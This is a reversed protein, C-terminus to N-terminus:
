MSRISACFDAGMGDAPASGDMCADRLQQQREASLSQFQAAFREQPAITTRGEDAFFGNADSDFSQLAMGLRSNAGISATASNDVNTQTNTGDRNGAAAVGAGGTANLKTDTGDNTGSGVAGTGASADANLGVGVNAAAGGGAGGSDGTGSVGISTGGGINVGGNTQAFAATGSILALSLASVVLTKKM